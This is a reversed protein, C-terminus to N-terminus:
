CAKISKIDKVKKIPDAKITSGRAPRNTNQGKEMPWPGGMERDIAWIFASFERAIAIVVSQRTKGRAILRHYRTCLRTQAKWSIDCINKSLGQQRKLLITSVRAPLHYTWAAEVLVRRVHSNGTKTISGRRISKGSSHESPILGLYAMLQKPNQFRNMDGIESVVTVAVIFSVGRMAQYARVFPFRCWQEVHVKILETVRKIRQSCEDATDIYEQFAIQQAPHSFKITALWNYFGKTWHKKGCYHHGHRLLFALLRQRAKREIQRIDDRCRVLDRIAEDEVTPVYISTLEGARFLRVLNIADRRDTKIRDGSRKPIMSPAVVACDIKKSRLHRYIQYGCPGAEYVFRLEPNNGHLKEILKNLADLTSNIKGYSRVKGNSRGTAIAVDITNKHVDLGIYLIKKKM